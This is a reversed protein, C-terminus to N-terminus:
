NYGKLLLIVKKLDPLVNKLSKIESLEKESQVLLVAAKTEQLIFKIHEVVSNAPIMVNIIGRTLCALDLMAMEPSNELLFAVKDEKNTLLNKLSREYIKIQDAVKLWSLTTVSSGKIINFLPKDKYDRLRQNFLINMNFNSKLILDLILTEWKQENYIRRLLASHRFLNLYEHIIFNLTQVSRENNLYTGFDFFLGKDIREMLEKAFDPQAVTIFIKLLIENEDKNLVTKAQALQKLIRPFYELQVKKDKSIFSSLLSALDKETKETGGSIEKEGM